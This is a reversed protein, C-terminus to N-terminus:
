NTLSLVERALVMSATHSLHAGDIYLLSGNTDLSSCTDKDCFVELSNVVHAYTAAKDLIDMENLQKTLYARDVLLQTAKRIGKSKLCCKSILFIRPVLGFATFVYNM